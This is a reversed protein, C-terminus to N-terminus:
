CAPAAKDQRVKHIMDAQFAVVRARGPFVPWSLADTSLGSGRFGAQQTFLLGLWCRRIRCVRDLRAELGFQIVDNSGRTPSSREPLM